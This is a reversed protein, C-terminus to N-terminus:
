IKYMEQWQLLLCSSGSYNTSNKKFNNKLFATLENKFTNTLQMQIEVSCNYLFAFRGVIVLQYSIQFMASKNYSFDCNQCSVGDVTKIKEANTTAKGLLIM